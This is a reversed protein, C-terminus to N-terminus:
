RTSRAMRTRKTRPTLRRSSPTRPSAASSTGVRPFPCLNVCACVGRTETEREFTSEGGRSRRSGPSRRARYIKRPRRQQFGIVSVRRSPGTSRRALRPSTRPHYASASRAGPSRSAVPTAASTSLTALSVQESPLPSAPFRAHSRVDRAFFRERRDSELEPLPFALHARGRPSASAVDRHNACAGM